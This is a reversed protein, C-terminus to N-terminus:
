INEIEVVRSERLATEADFGILHSYISDELTTASISPAEGKLIGVFDEVLLLDGSHGGADVGEETLPTTVYGSPAYLDPTRLIAEGEATLELEGKTGTIRLPRGAPVAGGCLTFSATVGNEYAIMVTQHDYVNNDCRWVCRGYPNDTKLSALKEEETAEIGGLHEISEWAYFGWKNRKIYTTVASHPCDKEISCDLACRTGSGEPANEPRFYKLSGFSSVKVPRVGSMLWSIIDLDHCSKSLFIQSGCRDSNSWKGRIFACDFHDYGIYEAADINM